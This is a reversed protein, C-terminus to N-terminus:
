SLMSLKEEKEAAPSRYWQAEYAYASPVALTPWFRIFVM